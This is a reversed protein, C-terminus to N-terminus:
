SSYNATEKGKDSSSAAPQEGDRNADVLNSDQIVVEKAAIKRMLSLFNSNRFKESEDSAVSDVLQQAVRALETDDNPSHATTERAPSESRVEPAPAAAPTEEIPNAAIWEDMAKAFEEDNISDEAQQQAAATRNTQAPALGGHMAAENAMHADWMKQQMLFNPSAAMFPTIPINMAHQVPPSTQMQPGPQMQQPTQPQPAMTAGHGSGLNMAQFSDVWQRGQVDHAGMMNAPQQHHYAPGAGLPVGPVAHHLNDPQPGHFLPDPGTQFEHFGQTAKAHALPSQHFRPGVRFSQLLGHQNAHHGLDSVHAHNTVESPKGGQVFRDQQRSRDQNLHNALGKAASSPGCLSSDM